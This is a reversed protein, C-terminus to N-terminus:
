GSTNCFLIGNVEPLTQDIGSKTPTQTELTPDRELGNLKSFNNWSQDVVANAESIKKTRDAELLEEIIM